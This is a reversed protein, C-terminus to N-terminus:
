CLGQFKAEYMHLALGRFAFDDHHLGRSKTAVIHSAWERKNFGVIVCDDFVKSKAPKCRTEPAITLQWSHHPTTIAESM